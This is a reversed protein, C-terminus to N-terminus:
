EKIAALVRRVIGDRERGQFWRLVIVLDHEPDVYVMNAGSGSHYFASEPASPLLHQGTNLFYNMFGYTPNVGGPELAMDIWDESLIQQNGWRGRHLTLMGLRALDRASIFMGGGWHGGGSVSQVMVGWHANHFAPDELITDIEAQLARLAHDPLPAWTAPQRTACAAAALLLTLFRLHHITRTNM